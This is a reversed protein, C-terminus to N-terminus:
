AAVGGAVEVAAEPAPERKPEIVQKDDQVMRLGLGRLGAAGLQGADQEIAERNVEPCSRVYKEPVEGLVKAWTWGALPKLHPQGFRYGVVGSGFEVTRRTVFEERHKALWDAILRRETAVDAVVCDLSDRFEADIAAKRAEIKTVIRDRAIELRQLENMAHEVDALTMLAGGRGM